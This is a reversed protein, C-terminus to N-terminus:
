DDPRYKDWQIKLKRMRARLTHPNIKLLVAAGRRGEIRGRTLMLASEIHKKMAEDLSAFTSGFLPAPAAEGTGAPEKPQPIGPGLATAIELRKGNGLIAARDIV